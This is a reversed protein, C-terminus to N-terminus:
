SAVKRAARRGVAVVVGDTKVPDLVKRGAVILLAGAKVLEQRHQRMFWALSTPTPFLQKRSAQYDVPSALSTITDTM